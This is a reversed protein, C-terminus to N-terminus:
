TMNGIVIGFLIAAVWFLLWMLRGGAFNSGGGGFADYSM